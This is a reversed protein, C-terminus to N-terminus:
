IVPNEETVFSICKQLDLFKREDPRIVELYKPERFAAAASEISDFWLEAVGDYDGATGFPVATKALHCQVYRRVHRSFETVSKVLPGHKQRWYASFEEHSMGPKRTACIILKVM